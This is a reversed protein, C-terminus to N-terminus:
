RTAAGGVANWAESAFSRRLPEGIRYAACFRKVDTGFHASGRYWGSTFRRLYFDLDEGSLQPRGLTSRPSM